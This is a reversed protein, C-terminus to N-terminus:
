LWNVTFLILGCWLLNTVGFGGRLEFGSFVILMGGVWGLDILGLWGLALWGKCWLVVNVCGLFCGGLCGLLDAHWVLGYGCFGGARLLVCGFVFMVVLVCWWLRFDLVAMFTVNHCGM